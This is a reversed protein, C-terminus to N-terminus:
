MFQPSQTSLQVASTSCSSPRNSIMVQVSGSRRTAGTGRTAARAAHRMDQDRGIRPMGLDVPHHPRQGHHRLRGFTKADLDAEQRRLREAGKRHRAIRIQPQRQRVRRLDGFQDLLRLGVADMDRGFARDPQQHPAIAALVAQREGRAEVGTERFIDGRTRRDRFGPDPPRQAPEVPRALRHHRCRRRQRGFQAHAAKAIHHQPRAADVGRQKMRAADVEAQRPRHEEADAADRDFLIEFGEEIEIQGAGLEDDAIARRARRQLPFIRIRHEQARPVALFQRLDIRGGVDEHERALGVRKAQHQELRQGAAQRNGSKRDGAGAVHDARRRDADQVLIQARGAQLRQLNRRLGADFEGGRWM